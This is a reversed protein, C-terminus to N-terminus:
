HERHEEAMPFIRWQGAFEFQGILHKFFGIGSSVGQPRVFYIPRVGSSRAQRRVQNTLLEAEKQVGIEVRIGKLDQIRYEDVVSIEPTPDM